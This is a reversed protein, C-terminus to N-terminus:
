DPPYYAEEEWWVKELKMVPMQIMMMPWRVRRVAALLPFLNQMLSHLLGPPMQVALALNMVVPFHDVTVLLLYMTVVSPMLVLQLYRVASDDLPSPNKPWPSDISDDQESMPLLLLVTRLAVVLDSAEEDVVVVAAVVM